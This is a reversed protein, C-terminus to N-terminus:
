EQENYVIKYVDKTQGTIKVDNSIDLGAVILIRNETALVPIQDRLREPIKKDTFYDNLKKTGSGFKSFMDGNERTRWVASQPVKDKDIFHAEGGFHIDKKDKVQSLTIKGFGPIFQEGEFFGIVGTKPLNQKKSIVVKDYEKVAVTSCPLSLKSGTRKAFLEIVALIHKKEIDAFDGLKEFAKKVLRTQIAPDCKLIKSSIEVLNDEQCLFELPLNKEFYSEDVACTKAFECLNNAISPYVEELKPLIEKRIFNRRYNIDSNTSDYVSSINHKKNYEEIEGRSHNILPRIINGCIKQMGKAGSVASGRFIHMLVTEAQDDKNHALAIKNAKQEQLIKNFVQYRLERAIQEITKSSKQKQELVKVNECVFKVNHSKCFERVFEQDRLAEEGRINHNVHVVIIEFDLDEKKELLLSLLCMSDAGGSVGVVIKDNECVCDDLVSKDLGM